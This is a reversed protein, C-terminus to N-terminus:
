RSATIRNSCARARALDRDAEAMGVRDVATLFKDLGVRTLPSKGIRDPEALFRQRQTGLLESAIVDHCQAALPAEGPRVLGHATAGVRHRDQLRCDLQPFDLESRVM